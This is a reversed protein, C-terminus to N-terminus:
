TNLYTSGPAGPIRVPILISVDNIAVVNSRKKVTFIVQNMRYSQHSVSDIHDNEMVSLLVVVVVIDSQITSSPSPLLHQGARAWVASPDDLHVDLELWFSYLSDSFSSSKGDSVVVVTPRDGREFMRRKGRRKKISSSPFKNLGFDRM